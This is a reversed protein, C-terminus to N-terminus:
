FIYKILKYSARGYTNSLKILFSQFLKEVQLTFKPINSIFTDITHLHVIITLPHAATVVKEVGQSNLHEVYKKTQIPLVATYDVGRLEM